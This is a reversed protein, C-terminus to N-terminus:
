HPKVRLAIGYEARPQIQEDHTGIETMSGTASHLLLNWLQM